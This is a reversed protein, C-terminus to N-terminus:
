ASRLKKGVKRRESSSRKVYRPPRAQQHCIGETKTERLFKVKREQLIIKRFVSNWTSAKKERLVKFDGSWERRTQM